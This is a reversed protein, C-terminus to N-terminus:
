MGYKLIDDEYYSWFTSMIIGMEHIFFFLDLSQSVQKLDCM